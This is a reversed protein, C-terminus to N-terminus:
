LGCFRSKRPINATKKADFATKWANRGTLMPRVCPDLALEFAYANVGIAARRQLTAKMVFPVKRRCRAIVSSVYCKEPLQPRNRPPFNCIRPLYRRFQAPSAGSARRPAAAALCDLSTSCLAGLGMTAFLKYKSVWRQLMAKAPRRISRFLWRRGTAAMEISPSPFSSKQRRVGGFVRCFRRFPSQMRHSLAGNRNRRAAGSAHGVGGVEVAALWPAFRHKKMGAASPDAPRHSTGHAQVDFDAAPDNITAVNTRGLLAAIGIM